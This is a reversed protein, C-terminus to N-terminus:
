SETVEKWVSKALEDFVPKLAPNIYDVGQVYYGSKTGHGYQVLIAVNCGNEIDDNHFVLSITGNSQEIDYRWSSAMLGSDVPSALELAVVGMEGYTNLLSTYDRNLNKKLMSETENFNGTSRFSFGM